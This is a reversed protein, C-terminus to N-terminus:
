RKTETDKILHGIKKLGCAERFVEFKLRPLAKTMGDAVMKATKIWIIQIHQRQVEQRLWHHHIDVHRLRTNLVTNEKTLLGVTQQNDCQITMASDLKKDLAKLLRAMFMAERATESVALLEAETTSTTVTSQKTARWAISGGCLLMMWGQSSKRDINDAFSADSAIIWGDDARNGDFELALDRTNKLYHLVHDAATDHILGLRTNHQALRSATFAIDPRM